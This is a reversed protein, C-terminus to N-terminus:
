SRRELSRRCASNLLQLRHSATWATRTNQNHEKANGLRGLRFRWVGRIEGARGARLYLWEFENYGVLFKALCMMRMWDLKTPETTASRVAAYQCDPRDLVIYGILGVASRFTAAQFTDLPELADRAGGGTAKTGPTRTKTAARTDTLGLLVALEKVQRTGGSWSFCMEQEHWRVTRELFKVDTLQGRGVRGLMKADFEDKMARDLRDLLADSGEAM